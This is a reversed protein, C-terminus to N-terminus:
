KISDLDAVLLMITLAPLHEPSINTVLYAPLNTRSEAQFYFILGVCVGM